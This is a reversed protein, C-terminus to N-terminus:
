SCCSSCSTSRLSCSAATPCSAALTRRRYSQQLSFPVRADGTEHIALVPVTIRGTPEAFVPDNERSRAGPAPAFRRIDRNLTEESVGLGADIRYRVHLTSAARGIPETRRIPVLM